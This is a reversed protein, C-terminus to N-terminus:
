PFILPTTSSLYGKYNMRPSSSQLVVAKNDMEATLRRVSSKYNLPGRQCVPQSRVMLDVADLFRM